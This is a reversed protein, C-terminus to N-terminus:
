SHFKGEIFSLFRKVPVHLPLLMSAYSTGLTFTFTFHPLDWAICYLDTHMLFFYPLYASINEFSFDIYIRM